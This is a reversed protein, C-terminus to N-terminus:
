QCSECTEDGLQCAQGLPEDLDDDQRCELTRLRMEEVAPSPIVQDRACDPLPTLTTYEPNLGSPAPSM